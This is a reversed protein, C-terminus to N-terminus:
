AAIARAPEVAAADALDIADIAHWAAAPSAHRGLPRVGDATLAHLEIRGDPLWYASVPTSKQLRTM